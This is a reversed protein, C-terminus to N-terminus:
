VIAGSLYPFLKFSIFNFILLLIHKFPLVSGSMMLDPETLSTMRLTLDAISAMAFLPPRM